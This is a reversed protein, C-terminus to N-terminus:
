SVAAEQGTASDLHIVGYKWGHRRYVVSPQGTDSDCFLYFDHGVLEMEALADSLTMPPSIHVKERVEIPCDGTAGFLDPETAAEDSAPEAEVPAPAPALAPELKAGRTRSVRRRDHARRLRETLKDLALEFAAFKDDHCAEARVVPGRTHCTIEVREGCQTKSRHPEHSVLVELRTARPDLHEVRSMRESVHERFKDTISQHRGSVVVDM